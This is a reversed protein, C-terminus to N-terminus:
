WQQLKSSNYKATALLCNKNCCWWLNRQQQKRSDVNYGVSSMLTSISFNYIRYEFLVYFIFLSFIACFISLKLVWSYRYPLFGKSDPVRTIKCSIQLRRLQSSIVITYLTHNGVFFYSKKREQSGYCPFLAFHDYILWWWKVAKM